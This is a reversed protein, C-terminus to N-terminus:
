SASRQFESPFALVRAIAVDFNDWCWEPWEIEFDPQNSLRILANLLLSRTAEPVDHEGARQMVAHAHCRWRPAVKAIAAFELSIPYYCEDCLLFGLTTGNSTYQTM